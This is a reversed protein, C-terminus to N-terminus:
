ACARLYGCSGSGLRALAKDEDGGATADLGPADREADVVPVVGFDDISEVLAVAHDEHGDRPQLRLLRLELVAHALARVSREGAAVRASPPASAAMSMPSVIPTAREAIRAFLIREKRVMSPTIMPMAATIVITASPSPACRCTSPCSADSPAFTSVTRGPWCINPPMSRPSFRMVCSSAVARMVSGRLM